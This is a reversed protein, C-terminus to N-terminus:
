RLRGTTLNISARTRIYSINNNEKFIKYNYERKRTDQRYVIHSVATTGAFVAGFLSGLPGGSAGYTIGMGIASAVNVFDMAFETQRSTREQLAQDGSLFGTGQVIYDIGYNGLQKAVAYAHTLNTRIFRSSFSNNATTSKEGTSAKPTSTVKDPAVAVANVNGGDKKIIIEIRQNGQQYYM